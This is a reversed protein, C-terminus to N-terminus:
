QRVPDIGDDLVLTSDCQRSFHGWSKQREEIAFLALAIELLSLIVENNIECAMTPDTVDRHCSFSM